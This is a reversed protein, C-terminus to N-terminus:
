KIVKQVVDLLKAAVFPKVIWGTAGAAKAEQKKAAQSETTLLLIPTFKYEEIARIEKILSIGDMVPMNLDTIVLQIEAGSLYQMADRGDKGELVTYGANKLTFSVIERVSESDDVILVTKSM